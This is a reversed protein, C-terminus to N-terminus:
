FGKIKPDHPNLDRGPCWSFCPSIAIHRLDKKMKDQSDFCNQWNKALKAKQSSLFGAKKFMFGKGSKSGMGKAQRWPKAIKWQFPFGHVFDGNEQNGGRDQGGAASPPFGGGDRGM